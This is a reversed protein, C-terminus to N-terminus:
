EDEDKPTIVISDSEPSANRLMMVPFTRLESKRGVFWGCVASVAGNTHELRAVTMYPGGSKLVVSDGPRIEDSTLQVTPRKRKPVANEQVNGEDGAARVLNRGLQKALLLSEDSSKFLQKSDRADEPVAAVGLTASVKLKKETMRSRELELRITEALAIAEMKTYNPLLIAMEDGGYRYAKGKGCTRNNLTASIALLVENGTEHGHTDNIQKFNDVDIIVLALPLGNEIAEKVLRELDADFAKTRLLPLRDDFEDKISAVATEAVPKAERAALVKRGEHTTKLDFSGIWFFQVRYPEEMARARAFPSYSLNEFKRIAILSQAELSCVCDVIEADTALGLDTRIDSLRNRLTGLTLQVWEDIRLGVVIDLIAIELHVPDIRQPM